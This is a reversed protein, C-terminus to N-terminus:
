FCHIESSAIPQGRSHLDGVPPRIEFDAAAYTQSVPSWLAGNGNEFTKEFVRMVVVSGELEKEGHCMPM